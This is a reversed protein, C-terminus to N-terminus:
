IILNYLLQLEEITRCFLDIHVFEGDPNSSDIQKPIAHLDYM